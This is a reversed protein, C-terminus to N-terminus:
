AWEGGQAQESPRAERSNEGRGADSGIRLPEGDASEVDLVVEIVWFAGAWAM